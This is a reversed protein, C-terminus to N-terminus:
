SFNSNRNWFFHEQLTNERGLWLLEELFKIERANKFVNQEM